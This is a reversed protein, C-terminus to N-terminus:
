VNKISAYDNLTSLTMKNGTQIPTVSWSTPTLNCYPCRCHSHNDRGSATAFFSLDGSLVVKIKQVVINIIINDEFEVDLAISKHVGTETTYNLITDNTHGKAVHLNTFGLPLFICKIIDGIKLSVLFSNQLKKKVGENITPALLAQIEHVDKKCDIEAFQLTRIGYDVKNKERRSQSDLYNTRLLYRSKGAGHDAGIIIVIGKANPSFINSTYGFQNHYGQATLMREFDIEILDCINYTWYQVNEEGNVNENKKYTYEGFIPKIKETVDSLNRVQNFPVVLRNKFKAYLHSLIVKASHYSVNAEVWMATAEVDTMKQIINMGSDVAVQVFAHPNRKQITKLLWTSVEFDSKSCSYKTIFEVISEMWKERKENKQFVILDKSRPIPILIGPRDNRHTFNLPEKNDKYLAVIESLLNQISQRNKTNNFNTEFGLKKLIQYKNITHSSKDPSKNTLDVLDIHETQTTETTLDVLNVQEINNQCNNNYNENQFRTNYLSMKDVDLHCENDSLIIFQGSSCKLNRCIGLKTISNINIKFCHLSIGDRQAEKSFANYLENLSM